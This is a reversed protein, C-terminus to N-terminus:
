PALITHQLVAQLSMHLLQCTIRKEYSSLVEGPYNIRLGFTKINLFVKQWMMNASNFHIPGAIQRDTLLEENERVVLTIDMLAVLSHGLFPCEVLVMGCKLAAGVENKIHFILLGLLGSHKM